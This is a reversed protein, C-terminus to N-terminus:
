LLMPRSSTTGANILEQFPLKGSLQHRHSFTFLRDQNGPSCSKQTGMEAVAEDTFSEANDAHVVENGAGEVIDLVKKLEFLKFKVMVIYGAEHM